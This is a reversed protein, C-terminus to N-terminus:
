NILLWLNVRDAIWKFQSKSVKTHALWNQEKKSFAMSNYWEIQQGNGMDNKWKALSIEHVVPSWQIYDMSNDVKFVVSIATDSKGTFRLHIETQVHIGTQKIKCAYGFAHMLSAYSMERESCWGFSYFTGIAGHSYRPSDSFLDALFISPIRDIDAYSKYRAFTEPPKIKSLQRKEPLRLIRYRPNPEVWHWVYPLRLVGGVEFDSCGSGTFLDHFFYLKFFKDRNDQCDIKLGLEKCFERFTHARRQEYKTSHRSYLADFVEVVSEARISSVILLTFAVFLLVGPRTIVTINFCASMMRARSGWM